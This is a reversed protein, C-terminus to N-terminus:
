KKTKTKQKSTKPSDLTSNGLKADGCKTKTCANEKCGKRQPKKGSLTLRRVSRRHRKSQVLIFDDEESNEEEVWDLLTQDNLQNTQSPNLDQVNNTESLTSSKLKEQLSFRANELDKLMDISDFDKVGLNVGMLNGKKVISDNDLASFFNSYISTTGESTRKKNSKGPNQNLHGVLNKQIRDSTRREEREKRLIDCPHLMVKLPQEVNNCLTTNNDRPESSADKIESITITSNQRKANEFIHQNVMDVEQNSLNSVRWLSERHKSSEGEKNFMKNVQEAFGESDDSNEMYCERETDNNPEYMAAPIIEDDPPIPTNGGEM